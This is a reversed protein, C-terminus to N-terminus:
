GVLGLTEGAYIDFSIRDVAKIDGIKRSIVAGRTVSFYKSLDRIQVLPPASQPTM